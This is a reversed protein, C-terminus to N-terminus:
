PTTRGFGFTRNYSDVLDSSNNTLENTRISRNRRIRDIQEQLDSRIEEVRREYDRRLTERAERESTVTNNLQTITNHNQAIAANQEEIPASMDSNRQNIENFRQYAFYGAVAVGVILLLSLWNNIFFSKVLNNTNPTEM